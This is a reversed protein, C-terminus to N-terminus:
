TIIPYKLITSNVPNNISINLQWDLQRWFIKILEAVVRGFNCIKFPKLSKDDILSPVRIM